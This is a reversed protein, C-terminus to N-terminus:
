RFFSLHPNLFHFTELECVSVHMYLATELDMERFICACSHREALAKMRELEADEGPRHARSDSWDREQVAGGLNCKLASWCSLESEATALHIADLFCTMTLLLQFSVFLLKEVSLRKNLLGTISFNDMM